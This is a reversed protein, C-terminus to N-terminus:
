KKKKSRELFVEIHYELQALRKDQSLGDSNIDLMPLSDLDPYKILLGNQYVGTYKVLIEFPEKLFPLSQLMMFSFFSPHSTTLEIVEWDDNSILKFTIVGGKKEIGYLLGDISEFRKDNVLDIFTNDSAM